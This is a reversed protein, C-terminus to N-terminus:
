AGIGAVGVVALVPSVNGFESLLHYMWYFGGGHGIIGTV